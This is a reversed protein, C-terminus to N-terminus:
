YRNGYDPKSRSRIMKILEVDHYPDLWYMIGKWHCFADYPACPYLAEYNLHSLAYNAALKVCEPSPDDALEHWAQSMYARRSTDTSVNHTWIGEIYRCVRRSDVETRTKIPHRYSSVQVFPVICKWLDWNGEIRKSYNSYYNPNSREYGVMEVYGVSEPKSGFDTRYWYFAKAAEITYVEVTDAKEGYYVLSTGGKLSLLRDNSPLTIGSNLVRKRTLFPM